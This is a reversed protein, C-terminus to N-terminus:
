VNGIHTWSRNPSPFRCKCVSKSVDNLWGSTFISSHSLRAHINVEHSQWGRLNSDQNGDSIAILFSRTEMTIASVIECYKCNVRANEWLSTCRMIVVLIFYATFVIFCFNVNRHWLKRACIRSLIQPISKNTLKGIHVTVVPIIKFKVTSDKGWATCTWYFSNLLPFPTYPLPQSRYKSVIVNKRILNLFTLFLRQWSQRASAGQSVM